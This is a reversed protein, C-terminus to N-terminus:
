DITLCADHKKLFQQAQQKYIPYEMLKSCTSKVDAIIKDLNNCNEKAKTIRSEYINFCHEMSRKGLTVRDSDYFLGQSGLESSALLAAIKSLQEADGLNKNVNILLQTSRHMHTIFNGSRKLIDDPTTQMPFLCWSTTLDFLGYFMHESGASSGVDSSSGQLTTPFQFRDTLVKQSFRYDETLFHHHAIRYLSKYHHRYDKLIYLFEELCTQVIRTFLQESDSELIGDHVLTALDTVTENVDRMIEDDTEDKLNFWSGFYSKKARTLFLMIQSLIKAPPTKHRNIYKLVCAHIRYHIENGFGDCIEDVYDIGRNAASSFMHLKSLEYYRLPQLINSKEAIKGLFYYNLWIEDDNAFKNASEFCVRAKDLFQNRQKKIEEKQSNELVPGFKMVRSIYSAINYACKGYKTMLKSEGEKLRLAENYCRGAKEGLLLVEDIASYFVQCSPLSYQYILDTMSLTCGAWSDFRNRNLTLDLIYFKIAKQFDEKKLYYDALYYYLDRTVHDKPISTTPEISKGHDVYEKVSNSFREPNLNDPVLLLLSRLLEEINSGISKGTESDFTPLTKPIFHNYIPRIDKWRLTVRAEHHSILFSCTLQNYFCGLCSNILREKKRNCQNILYDLSLSLFEGNYDCCAGVHGLYDHVSGILGSIKGEDLKGVRMENIFTQLICTWAMANYDKTGLKLLKIALEGNISLKDGNKLCARLLKLLRGTLQKSKAIIEVGRKWQKSSQIAQCLYVEEQRSLESKSALLEVIEEHRHQDLLTDLNNENMKNIMSKLISSCYVTQNTTQVLKLNSKEFVENAMLLYDVKSEAIGRLIMLRIFFKDYDNPNLLDRLFPISETLFVAESQNFNVENATLILKTTLIGIGITCFTSPKSLPYSKRHIGYLDMFNSPLKILAAQDAIEYLLDRILLGIQKGKSVFPIQKSRYRTLILHEVQAENHTQVQLEEEQVIERTLVSGPFMFFIKKYMNDVTADTTKKDRASRRKVSLEPSSGRTKRKNNQNLAEQHSSRISQSANCNQVPNFSVKISILSNPDVRNETMKNKVDILASIVSKLSNYSTDNLDFCLSKRVNERKTESEKRREHLQKLNELVELLKRKRELGQEPNWNKLYNLRVPLKSELSPSLKLVESVLVRGKFYNGDKMLGKIALQLCENHDNLVFYLGMLTDLVFWNTPDIRHAEEFCIRAFTLDVSQNLARKGTEILLTVDGGAISSCDLFYDLDNKTLQKQNTLNIFKQQICNMLNGSKCNCSQSNCDNKHRLHDKIFDHALKLLNDPFFPSHNSKWNRPGPALEHFDTEEIWNFGSKTLEPISYSQVIEKVWLRLKSDALNYNLKDSKIINIIGLKDNRNLLNLFQKVKDAANRLSDLQDKNSNVYSELEKQLYDIEENFKTKEKEIENTYEKLRINLLDLQKQVDDLYIKINETVRINNTDTNNNDLEIPVINSSNNNKACKACFLESTENDFFQAICKSCKSCPQDDTESSLIVACCRKSPLITRHFSLLHPECFDREDCFCHFIAQNNCVSDDRCRKREIAKLYDTEVLKSKCLVCLDNEQKCKGCFTKLCKHVYFVDSQNHGCDLKDISQNSM